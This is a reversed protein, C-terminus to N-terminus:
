VVSKRDLGANMLANLGSNYQGANFQNMSNQQGANFQNMANAQGVNFTGIQNGMARNQLMANMLAQDAGNGQSANFQSGQNMASANFQSNQNMMGQNQLDAGILAQNMANQQAADFQSAANQQGVNFQNNQNMMSQNQLAANIMAQQMANGQAANFQNQANGLQQNQLQNQAAAQAMSNSQGANFQSGQNQMQANQLSANIQAQTIANQQGANFQGQSAGLGLQQIGTSLDQGRAAVASSLLNSLNSSNFQNINQAGQLRGQMNAIGAQADQSRGQLGVNARGMRDQFDQGMLAMAQQRRMSADQAALEANLNSEAYQAGTGLAGAGEAGFRARQDAIARQRNREMLPDQGLTDYAQRYDMGQALEPAASLSAASFGSQGQQGQANGIMNMLMSNFDSGVRQDTNFNSQAATFPATNAQAIAAQQAQMPSLNAMGTGAAQQATGFQSLNAGGTGAAQQADRVTAVNRFREFNTGGTGQAQTTSAQRPGNQFRSLDEMGTGSFQNLDANSTSAQRLNQPDFRSLDMMGTQGQGFNTPLNQLNPPTYPNTYQTPAQQSKFFNQLAANAGSIDQVNGGLMSQFAQQFGQQQQFPQQANSNAMNMYPTMPSGPAGSGGQPPGGPGASPGQGSGIAGTTGAQLQQWQSPNVGAPAQGFLQSGLFQNWGQAVPTVPTGGVTKTKAGM